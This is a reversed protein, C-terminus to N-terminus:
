PGRQRADISGLPGAPLAQSVLFRLLRLFVARRLRPLSRRLAFPRPAFGRVYLVNDDMGTWTEVGGELPIAFFVARHLEGEGESGM